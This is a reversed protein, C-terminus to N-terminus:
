RRSDTVDFKHFLSVTVRSRLWHNTGYRFYEAKAKQVSRMKNPGYTLVITRIDATHVECNTLLLVTNAALTRTFDAM